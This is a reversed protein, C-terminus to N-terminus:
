VIRSRLFITIFVHVATEKWCNYVIFAACCIMLIEKLLFGHGIRCSCIRIITKGSIESNPLRARCYPCSANRQLWPFICKTHYLHDCPLKRVEAENFNFTDFCVGCQIQSDAMAKTISARPLKQFQEESM